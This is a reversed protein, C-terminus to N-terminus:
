TFFFYNEKKNLHSNKRTKFISKVGCMTKVWCCIKKEKIKYFATSKNLTLSGFFTNKAQYIKRFSTKKQKKKLTDLKLNRNLTQKKKQRM